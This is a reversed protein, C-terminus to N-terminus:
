KAEWPCLRAAVLSIADLLSSVRRVLSEAEKGRECLLALGIMMRGARRAAFDLAECLALTAWAVDGPDSRYAEFLVDEVGLLRVRFRSRPNREVVLRLGSAQQVLPTLKHALRVLRAADFPEPSALITALAEM